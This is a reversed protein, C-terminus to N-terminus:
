KYDTRVLEPKVVVGFRERAYDFAAYGKDQLCFSSVKTGAQREFLERAAYDVAFPNKGILFGIDRIIPKQAKDLCDCQPTISYLHAVNILRDWKGDMVGMLYDAMRYPLSDEGRQWDLVEKGEMRICGEQCADICKGCGICRKEVLWPIMGKAWVFAEQPCDRFCGGCRLCLEEDILPLLYQHMQLKGKRSSLGMTLGKVALALHALGHLTLHVHNIITGAAEFGGSIYFEPYRSASDIRKVKEEEDFEFVGPISTEPRDLAVFPHWGHAQALHLYRRVDGAPNEHWGRDGKYVVTTDGSVIKDIGQERLFELSSKIFEPRMRTNCKPEGIHCKILAPEEATLDFFSLMQRLNRNIRKRVGTEDLSLEQGRIDLFLVPSTENIGRKYRLWDPIKLEAM